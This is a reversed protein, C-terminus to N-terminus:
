LITLRVIASYLESPWPLPVWCARAPMVQLLRRAMSRSCTWYGLNRARAESRELILCTDNFWLAFLFFACVNRYLNFDLNFIAEIVDGLKEDNCTDYDM